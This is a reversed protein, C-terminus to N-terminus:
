ADPNLFEIRKHVDINISPYRNSLKGSNFLGTLMHEMDDYGLAKAFIPKLYECGFKSPQFKEPNYFSPHVSRAHIQGWRDRLKNAPLSDLTFGGEPSYQLTAVHNSKGHLLLETAKGGLQAAYFRDFLVPRGGRQTHGVKRTFIAQKANDHRRRDKFYDDGLREILIQQLAESAGSFQINGAPDVSASRAGLQHGEEDRVGEGMVIVCHKQLEYIEKVRDVLADINIPVEPILVIDPQGYASGLSIYGSDRGMVEVIAIRRHSEATTRTREIAQVVVFVATAYGPTAYNIIDQLELDQRSHHLEFKKKPSNSEVEVWDNPEEIYNLGLDNDITKPALVCPFYESIPQMGNITGDGGICILGEVGLRGLRGAVSKLLESEDKDIYTRSAGLLTGGYEPRLEPITSNLPNLKVHPVRPDVMGGFGKIIGVVQVGFENAREVVGYITANLAPTDGGATLVALRRM